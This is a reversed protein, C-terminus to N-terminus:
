FASTARSLDHGAGAARASNGDRSLTKPVVQVVDDPQVLDDEQARITEFKGDTRRALFYDPKEYAATDAAITM